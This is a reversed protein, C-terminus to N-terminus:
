AQKREHNSVQVGAAWALLQVQDRPLGLDTAHCLAARIDDDLQQQEDRERMAQEGPDRDDDM